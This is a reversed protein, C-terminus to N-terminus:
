RRPLQPLVHWGSADCFLLVHLETSGWTFVGEYHPVGGAESFYVGTLTYVNQGNVTVALGALGPAYQRM